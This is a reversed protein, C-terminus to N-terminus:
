PVPPVPKGAPAAPAPLNTTKPEGAVQANLERIRRAREGEKRIVRLLPIIGIMFLVFYLALFSNLSSSFRAAPPRGLFQTGIVLTAVYVLFATALLVLVWATWRIWLRADVACEACRRPPNFSSAFEEYGGCPNGCRGCLRPHTEPPM